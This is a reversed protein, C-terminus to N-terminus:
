TTEYFRLRGEFGDSIKLVKVDATLEEGKVTLIKIKTVLSSKSQFAKKWKEEYDQSVVYEQWQLGMLQEKTCGIANAYATNVEYNHGYEDCRFIGIDSMEVDIRRCEILNNIDKSLKEIQDVSNYFRKFFGFFSKVGKWLRTLPKFLKELIAVAGSLVAVMAWPSNSSDDFFQKVDQILSM